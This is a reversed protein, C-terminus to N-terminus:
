FDIKGLKSLIYIYSNIDNVLFSPAILVNCIVAPELLCSCHHTIINPECYMYMYMCVYMFM